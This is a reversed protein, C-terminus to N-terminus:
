RGKTNTTPADLLRRVTRKSIGPKVKQCLAFFERWNQFAAETPHAFAFMAYASEEVTLGKLTIENGDLFQAELDCTVDTESIESM